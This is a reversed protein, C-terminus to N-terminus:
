LGTRRDVGHDVAAAVEGEDPYLSSDPKPDPPTRRSGAPRRRCSGPHARRAARVRLSSAEGPIAGAGQAAPDCPAARQILPQHDGPQVVHTERAPCTMRTMSSSAVMRPRRSAATLIGDGTRSANADMTDQPPASPGPHVSEATTIQTRSPPALNRHHAGRPAAPHGCPHLTPSRCRNGNSGVTPTSSAPRPRTASVSIPMAFSDNGTRQHPTSKKVVKIHGHTACAYHRQRQQEHRAGQTRRTWVRHRRRGVDATPARASVRARSTPLWRRPRPLGPPLTRDSATADSRWRLSSRASGAPGVPTTAAVKDRQAEIAALADRQRLALVANAMSRDRHLRADLTSLM